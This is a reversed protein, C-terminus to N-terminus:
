PKMMVFLFIKLHSCCCKQFPLMQISLPCSSPVSYGAGLLISTWFISFFIPRRLFRLIHFFNTLFCFVKERYEQNSNLVTKWLNAIIETLTEKLVPTSINSRDMLFVILKFPRSDKEINKGDIERLLGKFAETQLYISRDTTVDEPSVWMNFRRTLSMDRRCLILM